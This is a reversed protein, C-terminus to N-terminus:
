GALLVVCGDAESSLFFSPLRGYRRSSNKQFSRISPFSLLALFGSSLKSNKPIKPLM